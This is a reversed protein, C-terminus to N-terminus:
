AAIVRYEVSSEKNESMVFCMCMRRMSMGMMMNIIGFTKM